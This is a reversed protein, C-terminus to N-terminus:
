EKNYYYDLILTGFGLQYYNLYYRDCINESRLNLGEFITQKNSKNVKHDPQRILKLNQLFVLVDTKGQFQKQLNEIVKNYEEKEREKAREDDIKKIRENQKKLENLCKDILEDETLNPFIQRLNRTTLQESIFKYGSNEVEDLKFSNVFIDNSNINKKKEEQKYIM